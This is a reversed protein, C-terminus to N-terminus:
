DRDFDNDRKWAIERWAEDLGINEEDKTLEIKTKTGKIWAKVIEISPDSDPTLLEGFKGRQGQSGATYECHATVEIQQDNREIVFNINM